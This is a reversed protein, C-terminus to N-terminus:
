RLESKFAMLERRLAGAQERAEPTKLRPTMTELSTELQELRALPADALGGTDMGFTAARGAQQWQQRIRTLEARLAAIQQAEPAVEVWPLRGTLAYTGGVYAGGLVLLLVLLKKV